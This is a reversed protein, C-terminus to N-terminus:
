TTIDWGARVCIAEGCARDHLAVPEVLSKRSVSHLTWEACGGARMALKSVVVNLHARVTETIERRVLDSQEGGREITVM